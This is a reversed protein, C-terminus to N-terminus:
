DRDRDRDGDCEMRLRKTSSADLKNKSEGLQEDPDRLIPHLEVNSVFKILDQPIEGGSSKANKSVVQNCYNAEDHSSNRGSM